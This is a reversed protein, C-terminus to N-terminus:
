GAVASRSYLSRAEFLDLRTRLVMRTAGMECAQDALAALLIRAGGGGRFGRGCM